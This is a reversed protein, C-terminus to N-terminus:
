TSAGKNKPDRARKNRPTPAKKVLGAKVLPAADLETLRLHEGPGYVRGRHNVQFGAVVEWIM